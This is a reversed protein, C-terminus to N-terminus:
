LRLLRVRGCSPTSGPYPVARGPVAGCRVAGCRVAGCRVAGCRVAGCRVAGCRAKAEALGSTCKRIAAISDRRGASICLMLATQGARNRLSLQAGISLLFVAAASQSHRRGRTDVMDRQVTVAYHLPTNGGAQGEM